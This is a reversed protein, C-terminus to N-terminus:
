PEQVTVTATVAKRNERGGGEAMFLNDSASVLWSNEAMQLSRRECTLGRSNQASPIPLLSCIVISRDSTM